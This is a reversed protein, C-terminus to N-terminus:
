QANKIELLLKEKEQQREQKRICEEPLKVEYTTSEIRDTIRGDMQICGIPINSTYITPLRSEYRHNILRYFVTDIWQKPMQVGIDDIVLLGAEHIQKTDDIGDYSKKTMEIFDLTNIFKVSGPYRKSIENLLCCSLMTKGSGKTESYIYLGFGKSKFMEYKTIFTNVMAKPKGIDANYRNWDFDAGVKDMFEFPMMARNKRFESESSSISDSPLYYERGLSDELIYGNTINIIKTADIEANELECKGNTAKLIRRIYARREMIQDQSMEIESTRFRALITTKAEM